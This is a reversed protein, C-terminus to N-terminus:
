AAPSQDLAAEEGELQAFFENGDVGEGRQLSDLGQAIKQRLEQKGLEMLPTLKPCAEKGFGVVRM